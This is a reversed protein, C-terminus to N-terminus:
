PSPKSAGTAGLRNLFEGVIEEESRLGPPIAVVDRRLLQEIAVRISSPTTTCPIVGVLRQMYSRTTCIAPRRLWLSELVAYPFGEFYSPLITGISGSILSLKERDSVPGLFVFNAIGAKAAYRRIEDMAGFDQGALIFTVPLGSIARLVSIFNKRKDARGVACFYPAYDSWRQRDDGSLDVVDPRGYPQDMAFLRNPNLAFRQALERSEIESLTVVLCLRHLVSSALVRDYVLKMLFSPLDFRYGTNMLETWHGTEYYGGHTIIVKRVPKWREDLCLRTLWLRGVGELILCDTSDPAIALLDSHPRIEAAHGADRLAALLRSAHYEVGGKVKDYSDALIVFRM